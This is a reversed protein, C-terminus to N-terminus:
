SGRQAQLELAKVKLRGPQRYNRQKEGIERMASEVKASRTMKVAEKAEAEGTAM